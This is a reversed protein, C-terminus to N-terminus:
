VQRAHFAALVVLMGSVLRAVLGGVVVVERIAASGATARRLRVVCLQAWEVVALSSPMVQSAQCVTSLAGEGLLWLLRSTHARFQQRPVTFLQSDEM